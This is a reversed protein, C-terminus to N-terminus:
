PKLMVSVTNVAVGEEWVVGYWGYAGGGGGLACVTTGIADAKM